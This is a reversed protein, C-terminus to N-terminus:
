TGGNRGLRARIAVVKDAWEERLERDAAAADSGEQGTPTTTPRLPRRRRPAQYQILARAASVRTPDAAATGAVVAQLYAEATQYEVSREAPAPPASAGIAAKIDARKELRCGIVKASRPSYGAARAAQAQGMGQTRAQVYLAQKPTLAM